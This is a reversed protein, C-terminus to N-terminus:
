QPAGSSSAPKLALPGFLFAGTVTGKQHIAAGKPRARATSRGGLPTGGDSPERMPESAIWNLIKGRPWQPKSPSRSINMARQM